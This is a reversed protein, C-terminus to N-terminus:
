AAESTLYVVHSGEPPVTREGIVFLKERDVYFLFVAGRNRAKLSEWDFEESLATVKFSGHRWYRRSLEAYTGLEGWPTLGMLAHATEKRHGLSSPSVQLAHQRGIEQAFSTCVLSNYADDDTAALVWSVRELPLVIGAEDSLVDGYHVEMGERRAHSVRQYRSDALIVYAGAKTLAQALAVGWTQAGVILIGTGEVFGLGLRRSLPRITLGHLVVTAIIVGFVIPVLLEADPYGAQVLPDQFAGAVAAAVIGRPAIWSILTRENWPLGSRFTAVLGVLPRAVFVIAAILVLPTGILKALQDMELRASLLLFLFAVLLSGIQEKFRRIDEISHEKMNALVLGMTTVAFLGNEHGIEEALTYVVLVAGLMVPNKMHEAIQHRVLARGLIWGAAVGVAGGALAQLGVAFVLGGVSEGSEGGLVAIEFVVFAMLAGLPDNVIGEWKLLTAPRLSIRSSRLMPLIVTPGTVVLIAGLVAATAPSLGAIWVGLAMVSGFGVVLGSVILRWLVPGAFRAEAFELSLGGEFLIIAVALRIVPNQFRGFELNPDFVGAIPGLTIGAALLLLLAPLRLRLAIWQIFVGLAILLTLLHIPDLKM